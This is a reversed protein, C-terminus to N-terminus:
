QRDLRKAVAKVARAVNPLFERHFTGSTDLYPFLVGEHESGDDDFAGVLEPVIERLDYNGDKRGGRLSGRHLLFVEKDRTLFGGQIRRDVGSKPINAQFADRLASPKGVGFSNWYRTEGQSDGSKWYINEAAFCFAAHSAIDAGRTQYSGSFDSGQQELDRAYREWLEAIAAEGTLLKPRVLNAM